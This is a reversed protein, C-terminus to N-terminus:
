RGYSRATQRAVTGQAPWLSNDTSCAGGIETTGYFNGDTAQILGASPSAGDTCDTQSCFSYLTTIKGDSTIKFVTGTANTRGEHTTGYFDGNEVQILGAFPALGNVSVFSHLTTLTQAQASQSAVVALVLATAMSLLWQSIKNM